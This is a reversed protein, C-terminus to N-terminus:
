LTPKTVMLFVIAIVDVGLLIGITRGRRAVRQLEASGTDGAELLAIERRLTPTYGLIGGLAALAYLVLALAIWLDTLEIPTILLMWIGTALLITLGVYGGVMYVGGHSLNTIRLLGFILTFGSALLFLLAGFTVGNVFHLAFVEASM